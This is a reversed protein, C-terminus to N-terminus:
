LCKEKLKTLSALLQLNQFKPIYILQQKWKEQRFGIAQLRLLMMLEGLLELWDMKTKLRVMPPLIFKKGM